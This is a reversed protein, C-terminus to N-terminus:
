LEFYKSLKDALRTQLYPTVKFYDRLELYERVAEIQGPKVAYEARILINRATAEAGVFEVVKVRFGLIRLIQTRFTDTLIDAFRERLIGHRFVAKFPGGGNIQKQLDHQCCPSCLIYRCKWESARALADDTATDCAHLGMLLDPQVPLEASNIDSEIFSVDQSIDLRQAIERVNSIIAPNSDIGIIKVRYGRARVLYYYVSFTLYAKGCGCDVINLVGNELEADEAAPLLTDLERLLENIQDHKGKMSIRLNGNTDAIGLAKLMPLSEFADLPHKKVRDHPLVEVVEKQSGGRSVLPKGKKTIRVHLDGEATLLHLERAGSQALIEEVGKRAEPETMNKVSTQGDDIMEGQYMKENRILVPRISIRFVKGGRRLTQILKMFGPKEFCRALIEAALEAPLSTRSEMPNHYCM